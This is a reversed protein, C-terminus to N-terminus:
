QDRKQRGCGSKSGSHRSMLWDDLLGCRSVRLVTTKLLLRKGDTASRMPSTGRSTDHNDVGNRGNHSKLRSPLIRVM